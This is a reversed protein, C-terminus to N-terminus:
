EAGYVKIRDELPNFTKDKLASDPAPTGFVLQSKLNWVPPVNWETQIRVDILPNYHQLNCGLGEAELATWVSKELHFILISEIPPPPLSALSTSSVSTNICAMPKSPGQVFTTM